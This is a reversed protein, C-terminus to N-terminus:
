PRLVLKAGHTVKKNAIENLMSKLDGIAAEEDPSLKGALEV